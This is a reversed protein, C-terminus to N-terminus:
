LTCTVLWANKFTYHDSWTMTANLRLSLTIFQYTNSVKAATVSRDREPYSLLLIELNRGLIFEHTFKVHVAITFQLATRMIRGLSVFIPQIISVTTLPDLLLIRSLLYWGFEYSLKILNHLFYLVDGFLYGVSTNTLCRVKRYTYRQINLFYLKM